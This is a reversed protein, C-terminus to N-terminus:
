RTGVRRRGTHVNKKTIEGNRMKEVHFDFKIFNKVRSIFSKVVKRFESSDLRDESKNMALGLPVWLFGVSYAM